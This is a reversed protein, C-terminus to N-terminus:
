FSSSLASRTTDSSNLYYLCHKSKSQTFHPAVPHNSYFLFITQSLTKFLGAVATKLTSHLDALASAPFLQM